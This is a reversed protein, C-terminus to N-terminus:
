LSTEQGSPRSTKQHGRRRLGDKDGDNLATPQISKERGAVLGATGLNGNRSRNEAPTGM